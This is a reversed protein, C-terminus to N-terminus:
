NVFDYVIKYGIHFIATWAELKKNKEGLEGILSSSGVDIKSHLVTETTGQCLNPKEQKSIDAFRAQM